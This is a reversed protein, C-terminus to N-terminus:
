LRVGLILVDDIQERGSKWNDFTVSFKDKQENMTKTSNDRLMERFRKPYFKKGENGGKQDYFGDSFLYIADGENCAIEESNFNEHGLQQGIHTKSGKIEIIEDNSIRIMSNRSGAFLVKKRTVDVNVIVIDLGDKISVSKNKKIDGNSPKLLNYLDDNLHQLIESPGKVGQHKVIKELSSIALVSMFAGPVGHGTCDAVAIICNDSDLFCWSFDGSVIDRPQNYIFHEDFRDSLLENSVLLANQIKRAYSISDLINKNKKDLEVNQEAIQENKQKLKRNNRVYMLVLALMLISASGIAILWARFSDAEAKEQKLEAEKKAITLNKKDIANQQAEAQRENLILQSQQNLLKLEKVQNEVSLNEIEKLSKVNAQEINEIYKENKEKVDQDFGTLQENKNSKNQEIDKITSKIQGEVVEMKSEKAIKLAKNLRTLASEYDGYNAYVRGQNLLTNAYSQPEDLEKYLESAKEYSSISEKLKGAKFYNYGIRSHISAIAKANNGASTIASEYSAISKTHNGLESFCFGLSEYAYSTLEPEQQSESIRIASNYFSIARKFNKSKKSANGGNIQGRLEQKADKQNKAHIIAQNAHIVANQYEKKSFYLESITNEINAKKREDASSLESKLSAIDQACIHHAFFLLIITGFVRM